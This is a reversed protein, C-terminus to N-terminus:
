IFSCLIPNKLSATFTQSFNININQTQYKVLSM